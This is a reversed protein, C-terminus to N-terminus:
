LIRHDKAKNIAEVKSHVQLKKYINEIHKRVTSPSIFLNAAVAKYNLGGSLQELIEIERASLAFTEREKVRAISDSNNRLIKLAKRAVPRSMPAGGDLAEKLSRYIVQPPEDKLLYGNAGACIANIIREEDDFVTLMIVHVHPMKEKIIKTAEIGDMVPMEIDMLVIDIDNRTAMEDVMEQGNPKLFTFHFDAFLKIKEEISRGLLYNDEAVAINIKPNM